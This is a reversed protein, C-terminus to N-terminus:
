QRWIYLIVICCASCRLVARIVSVCTTAYRLLERTGKELGGGGTNGYGSMAGLGLWVEQLRGQTAGEGWFLFGAPNVGVM